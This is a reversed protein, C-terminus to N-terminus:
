SESSYPSLWAREIRDKYVKKAEKVDYLHVNNKQMCRPRYSLLDLSVIVRAAPELSPGRTPAPIRLYSRRARM